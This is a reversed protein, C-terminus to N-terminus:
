PFSGGRLITSVTVWQLLVACRVLSFMSSLAGVFFGLSAESVCLSRSSRPQSVVFHGTLSLHGRAHWEGCVRWFRVEVQRGRQARCAIVSAPSVPLVSWLM